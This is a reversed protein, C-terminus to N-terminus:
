PGCEPVPAREIAELAPDQNERYADITLRAPVQPSTADRKDLPHWEQWYYISARVTVGSNPLVIKRSDGYANGKSGTPEGVFTVNTYKELDDALMQAASFTAPGIIAFLRGTCDIRESQVIARIFPVVLTGDG